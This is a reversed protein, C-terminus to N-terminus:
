KRPPSSTTSGASPATTSGTTSAAATATSDDKEGYVQKWPIWKEFVLENSYQAFKPFTVRIKVKEFPEEKHDEEDKKKQDLEQQTPAWSDFAGTDSRERFSADGVIVEYGFEPYGQEAYSGNLGNEIDKQFEGAEIQGITLLALERALKYNRTHAATIKAVNLGQMVLLLGIGVIVITIAVEVLTFASRRRAITRQSVASHVALSM